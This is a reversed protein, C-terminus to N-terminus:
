SMKKIFIQQPRRPGLGVLEGFPFLVAFSPPPRPTMIVVSTWESKLDARLLQQFKILFCCRSTLKLVKSFKLLHVVFHLLFWLVPVWFSRLPLQKQNTKTCRLIKEKQPDTTSSRKTCCGGTKSVYDGYGCHEMSCILWTKAFVHQKRIWYNSEMSCETTKWGEQVACYCKHFWMPYGGLCLSATAAEGRKEQFVGWPSTWTPHLLWAWM